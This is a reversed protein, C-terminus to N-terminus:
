CLGFRGFVDNSGLVVYKISGEENKGERRKKYKKGVIEKKKCYVWKLIKM